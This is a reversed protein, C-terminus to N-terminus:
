RVVAGYQRGPVPLDDGVGGAPVIRADPDIVYVPHLFLAPGGVGSKEPSDPVRRICFRHVM